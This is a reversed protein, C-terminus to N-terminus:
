GAVWVFVCWLFVGCFCMWRCVELSAVIPLKSGVLAKKCTLYVKKSKADVGVVRASVTAGKVFRALTSKRVRGDSASVEGMHMPPVFGRLGQSVTVVAGHADAKVVTVDLLMGPHIDALKVM